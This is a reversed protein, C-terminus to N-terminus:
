VEFVSYPYCELAMHDSGVVAKHPSGHVISYLTGAKMYALGEMYLCLIYVNM